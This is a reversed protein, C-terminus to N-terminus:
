LCLHVLHFLNDGFEPEFVPLELARKKKKKLLSFQPTIDFKM